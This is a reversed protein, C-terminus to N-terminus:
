WWGFLKGIGDIINASHRMVSAVTKSIKEKNELYDIAMNIVSIVASEMFQKQAVTLNRNNNDQVTLQSNIYKEWDDASKSMTIVM